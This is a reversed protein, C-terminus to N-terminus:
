QTSPLPSVQDNLDIPAVSGSKISGTVTMRGSELQISKLNIGEIEGLQKALVDALSESIKETLPQPVALSGAQIKVLQLKVTGGSMEPVLSIALSTKLFSTPTGNLIIADPNIQVQVDRLPISPDKQVADIMLSTLEAETIVLSTAAGPAKRLDAFKQQLSTQDGITAVVQRSPAIATSIKKAVVVGGIVLIIILIILGFIMTQCTCYSRKGKDLERYFDEKAEM